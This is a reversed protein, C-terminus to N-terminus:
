GREAGLLRQATERAEGAAKVFRDEPVERLANLAQLTIAPRGELGM